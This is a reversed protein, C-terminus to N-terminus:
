KPILTVGFWEGKRYTTVFLARENLLARVVRRLEERGDVPYCMHQPDFRVWLDGRWTLITLQGAQSSRPARVFAEFEGDSRRRRVFRPGGQFAKDVWSAVLEAFTNVQM